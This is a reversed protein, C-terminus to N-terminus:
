ETFATRPKALPQNSDSRANTSDSDRRSDSTTSDGVLRGGRFQMVARNSGRFVDSVFPPEPEPAPQLGLIQELTARDDGDVALGGSGEGDPNYTLAIQGRERALIMINAQEPSLELTVINGLRSPQGQAFNRNISIVRVSSFLTKTFGGGMRLDRTLGTPTMHVDVFQGPKILGNVMAVSEGVGVSVARMGPAIELPPLEGPRYLQSARIPTAAPIPERAVRGVIVRNTILMDPQLDAVRVPGQGLHAETIVTGPALDVMAMTVNRTRIQSPREDVAFLRKGMYAVILGGVVAGMILTLKAPTLRQM